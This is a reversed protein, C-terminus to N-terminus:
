KPLEYFSIGFFKGVFNIVAFATFVVFLGFMAWLLKQRARGVSEKNGGATIWDFGGWIIFTLSLLVSAVFLFLIGVRLIEGISDIGGQPIKSSEIKITNGPEGITLALKSM